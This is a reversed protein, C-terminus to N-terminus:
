RHLPYGLVGLSLRRVPYVPIEPHELRELSPRSVLGELIEPFSLYGLNWPYDLAALNEPRELHLLSAPFYPYGLVGLNELCDLVVPNDLLQNRM